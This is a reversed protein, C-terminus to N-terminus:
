SSVSKSLTENTVYCCYMTQETIRSSGGLALTCFDCLIGSIAARCKFIFVDFRKLSKGITVDRQPQTTFM